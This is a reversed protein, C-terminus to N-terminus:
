HHLPWKITNKVRHTVICPNGPTQSPDSTLFLYYLSPYVMTFFAIPFRLKTSTCRLNRLHSGMSKFRRLSPTSSPHANGSAFCTYNDTDEIHDSLRVLDVCYRSFYSSSRAIRVTQSFLNLDMRSLNSATKCSTCSFNIGVGLILKCDRLVRNTRAEKWALPQNESGLEVIVEHLKQTRSINDCPIWLRYQEDSPTFCHRLAIRMHESYDVTIYAQALADESEKPPNDDPLHRRFPVFPARPPSPDQWTTSRKSLCPAPSCSPSVASPTNAKGTEPEM